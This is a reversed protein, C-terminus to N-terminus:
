KRTTYLDQLRVQWTLARQCEAELKWNLNLVGGRPVEGRGEKKTQRKKEGEKKQPKGRESGRM